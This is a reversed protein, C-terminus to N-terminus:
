YNNLEQFIEKVTSLNVINKLEIQKGEQKEKEENILLM